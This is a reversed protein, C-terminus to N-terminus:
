LGVVCCKWSVFDKERRKRFMVREVRVVKFKERVKMIFRRVLGRVKM